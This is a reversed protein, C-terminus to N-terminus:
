VSRFVENLNIFIDTLDVFANNVYPWCVANNIIFNYYQQNGFKCVANNIPKFDWKIWCCKGCISDAISTFFNSEM